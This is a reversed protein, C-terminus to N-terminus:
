VKLKSELNATLRQRRRWYVTGCAAISIALLGVTAPEPVAVIGGLRFSIAFNNWTGATGATTDRVNLSWTGLSEEGWFANTVFNWVINDGADSTSTVFLRSTYTGAPNTLYASLHGRTIHSINLSVVIEELLGPTTNTFTRTLGTSVGDPIATGVNQTGSNAIVLPTVNYGSVMNVFGDANILGFGYNQNFRFGAANTRWGGDSTATVDGADVITSTRALIHKALRVDMAPNAQKGLVMIGAVLPSASSTGGFNNTYNLDTYNNTGNTNYGLNGTRDTTSIGTGPVASGDTRNSPATVFVNAGFNSYNSFTGTHNLAAVTIVLPNSQAMKKNADQGSTGRDNGAAM